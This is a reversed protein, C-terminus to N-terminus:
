QQMQEECNKDSNRQHQQSTTRSSADEAENGLSQNDTGYVQQQRKKLLEEDRKLKFIGNRRLKQILYERVEEEDGFFKLALVMDGNARLKGMEEALVRREVQGLRQGYSQGRGGRGRGRGGRRYNASYNQSM